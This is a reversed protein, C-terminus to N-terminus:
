FYLSFDINKFKNKNSKLEKYLKKTVSNTLKFEQQTIEGKELAEQLEDEDVIVIKNDRAYIMIDIYIDIYYPVHTDKDLGNENTIDFYYLLPQKKNNFFVRMSYLENKPTCEVMFYGNDMINEGTATIFPSTVKNIKKVVIWCDALDYVKVDYKEADRMYATTTFKKKMLHIKDYYLILTLFFGCM